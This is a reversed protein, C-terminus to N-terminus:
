LNQWYVQELTPEETQQAVPAALLRSWGPTKQPSCIYRQEGMARRPSGPCLQSVRSQGVRFGMTGPVGGGGGAGSVKNDASSSRVCEKEGREERSATTETSKRGRKLVNNWLDQWQQQHGQGTTLRNQLM